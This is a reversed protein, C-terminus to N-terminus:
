HQAEAQQPRLRPSRGKERSIGLLPLESLFRRHSGARRAPERVAAAKKLPHCSTQCLRLTVYGPTIVQKVEKFPPSSALARSGESGGIPRPSQCIGHFSTSNSGAVSKGGRKERRGKSRNRIISYLIPIKRHLEPAAWTWPEANEIYVYISNRLKKKKKQREKIEERLATM